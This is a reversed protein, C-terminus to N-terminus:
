NLSDGTDLDYSWAGEDEDRFRSGRGEEEALLDDLSVLEPLSPDESLAPTGGVGGLEALFAGLREIEEEGATHHDDEAMPRALAPRLPAVKRATM